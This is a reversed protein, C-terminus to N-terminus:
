YLIILGNISFIEKAKQYVPGPQGQSSTSDQKLLIIALHVGEESEFRDKHENYYEKIKEERIIIRSKVEFNLLRMRELQKKITERYSEYNMGKKKLGAILDEHTWYNDTKIKEIAADVERPTVNIGLERIKEISIKENFLINFRKLQM